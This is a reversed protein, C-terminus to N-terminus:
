QQINELFRVVLQSPETFGSCDREGLRMVVIGSQYQSWLTITYGQDPTGVNEWETTVALGKAQLTDRASEMLQHVTM